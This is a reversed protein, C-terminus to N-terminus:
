FIEMVILRRETLRARATGGLVRWRIEYTHSAQTPAIDLFQVVGPGDANGLLGLIGSVSFELARVTDAIQAGDNYLTILFEDGDQVNFTGHFLILVDGGNPTVTRTMEPIVVFSASTTTPSSTTGVVQSRVPASGVMFVRAWGTTTGNTNVWLQGTGALTRQYVDGENGALLAVNPDATGRKINDATLIGGSQLTLDVSLVISDAAVDVTRPLGTTDDDLLLNDIQSAM